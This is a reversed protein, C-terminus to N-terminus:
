DIGPVVNRDNEDVFAEIAPDEAIRRKRAAENRRRAPDRNAEAQNEPGPRDSKEGKDGREGKKGM